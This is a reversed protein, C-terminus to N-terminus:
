HVDKKVGRAAKDAASARRSTESGAMGKMAKDARDPRYFDAAWWSPSKYHSWTEYRSGSVSRDIKETPCCAAVIQEDMRNLDADSLKEFEDRDFGPFNHVHQRTLDAAMRNQARDFTVHGIPVLFYKSTFWGGADVVVYYPRGTSNDVIFGDVSGLQNDDTGYVRMADFAVDDASGDLDDAAVYKLWPRPHDM